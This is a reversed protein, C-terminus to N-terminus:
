LDKIDNKVYVRDILRKYRAKDRVSLKERLMKIVGYRWRERMMEYPIFGVHKMKGGTTLGGETMLIHVHPQFKMTAGFTHVGVMMGIEVKEKNEFWDKLLKVSIDMLDKLLDRQRIFIEWLEKPLTFMIHRHPMEYMNEVTKRSWEEMYGTACVSCFRGKCRHPIVKIDGCFDYAYLSFGSEKEGRLRFKEVEELVIKRIKIKLLWKNGHLNNTHQRM